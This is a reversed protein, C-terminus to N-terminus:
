LQNDPFGKDKNITSMKLGREKNKPLTGEKNQSWCGQILCTIIM